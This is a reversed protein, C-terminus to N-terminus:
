VLTNDSSLNSCLLGLTQSSATPFVATSFDIAGLAKLDDHGMDLLLGHIRGGLADDRSREVMSMVNKWANDQAWGRILSVWSVPEDFCQGSWRDRSRSGQGAHEPLTTTGPAIVGLWLSAALPRLRQSGRIAIATDYYLRLSPRSTSAMLTHSVSFM